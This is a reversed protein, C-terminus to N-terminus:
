KIIKSYIHEDLFVNEKFINEVITAEHKFGNKELVKISGINSEFVSAWIRHPNHNEVIYECLWQVASSVFGQGWYDECLWYGIEINKSHVDLGLIFGINGIPDENLVLAFSTPKKKNINLEIWTTADDYTYPYPFINRLNKWINYNNASKALYAEDGKQWTRISFGKNTRYM